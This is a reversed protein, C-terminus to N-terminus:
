FINNLIKLSILVFYPLIKVYFNHYLIQDFYSMGYIRNLNLNIKKNLNKSKLNDSSIFLLIFKITAWM